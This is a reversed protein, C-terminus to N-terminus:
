VGSQCCLSNKGFTFVWGGVCESCLRVDVCCMDFGSIPHALALLSYALFPTRYVGECACIDPLVWAQQHSMNPWGLPQRSLFFMFFSNKLWIWGIITSLAGILEEAPVPICRTYVYTYVRYGHAKIFTSVYIYIYVHNFMYTYMNICIYVNAFHCREIPCIKTPAGKLSNIGQGFAYSSSIATTAAGRCKKTFGLFFWIINWKGLNAM